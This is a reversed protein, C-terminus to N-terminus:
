AGGGFQTLFKTFNTNPQPHEEYISQTPTTTTPTLVDNQVDRNYIAALWVVSKTSQQYIKLINDPELLYM